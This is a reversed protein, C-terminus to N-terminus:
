LVKPTLAGGGQNVVDPHFPLSCQEHKIPNTPVLICGIKMTIDWGGELGLFSILFRKSFFFVLTTFLQRM